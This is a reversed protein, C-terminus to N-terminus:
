FRVTQGLTLTNQTKKNGTKSAFVPDSARDLRWEILTRAGPFAGNKLELSATISGLTPKRVSNNGIPLIGATANSQSLYEGRLGLVRTESLKHTLYGGIGSVNYRRNSAEKGSRYNLDAGITTDEGLVRNYVLNALALERNTNVGMAERGTLLNVKVSSKESMTKAYQLGYFLERNGAADEVGRFRNTITGTWSESEGVTKTARIGAGFIPQLFQYQFSRSFFQGDGVKVTEYGVNSLFQGFQVLLNEKVQAAGYAELINPNTSNFTTNGLLARAVEGDILSLRFGVRNDMNAQKSIHVEGLNLLIQGERSNFLFTNRGNAPRNFNHTYNLELGVGIEVPDDAALASGVALASIGLTTFLRLM